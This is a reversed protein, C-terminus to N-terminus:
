ENLWNKIPEVVQDIDGAGITLIVDQADTKLYNVLESKSLVRKQLHTIFPLIMDSNVGEMPLERAPYIPLLVVDDAISLVKGFEKYFDKTRSFLHPQFIATITKKPYLNKISSLFALIENPHHAYDDIYIYERNKVVFEFRRKIGRFNLLGIKIVESSIGITHALLIAGIANEVNHIGAIPIQVNSMWVGGHSIIDFQTGNESFHINEAYFDAHQVTASYSLGNEIEAKSLAYYLGDKNEVKESFEQFTNRMSVADGYIDLHDSDTSTIVAAYPSLQLFSRGFEDAETISYIKETSGKQYWYNSQIEASIGGLFAYFQKESNKLISTLLASTTTKGHTGAVSLNITNKTALGLAESRKIIHFNNEIFYNLLVSNKPIALTYIVLVNKPHNKIEDALAATNDEFTLILGENELADTLASKTKDYGFVKFNQSLYYRVLASMGIGGAGLFFLYTYKKNSL